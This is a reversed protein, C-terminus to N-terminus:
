KVPDLSASVVVIGVERQDANLTKDVSFEVRVPGTGLWVAPLDRTFTSSGPQRYLEPRTPHGNVRASLTVPGLKQAILDPLYMELSLRASTAGRLVPPDFRIAFDRQSWRWRGEEIAYFGELRDAFASDGLPIRSGGGQHLTNPDVELIEAWPAGDRQPISIRRTVPSAEALAALFANTTEPMQRAAPAFYLFVGGERLEDMWPRRAGIMEVTRLRADTITYLNYQLGWDLIKITRDRYDQELRTALSVVGDSWPGVGGTTKLGAIAATQWQFACAAYLVGLVWFPWRAPAAIVATAAAFPLQAVQQHEAVMHNSSFMAASFFVCSLAVIRPMPERRRLCLACAALVVAPFLWRQWAPMFPGNWMARHERDSLLTESFMVLRTWLRQGLPDQARFMRAAEFTGGQSIVQYVILPASGLVAGGLAAAWHSLPLERLKGRLVIGVALFIAAV